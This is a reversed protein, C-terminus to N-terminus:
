KNQSNAMATRPLQNGGPKMAMNMNMGGNQMNNRMMQFNQQSMEPRMQRLMQQQHEQRM